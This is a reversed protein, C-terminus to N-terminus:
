INSDIPSADKNEGGKKTEGGEGREKKREGGKEGRKEERESQWKFHELMIRTYRESQETHKSAM